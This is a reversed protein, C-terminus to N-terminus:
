LRWAGRLAESEGKGLRKKSWFPSQRRTDHKYWPMQYVVSVNGSHRIMAM